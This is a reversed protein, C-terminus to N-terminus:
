FGCGLTVGVPMVVWGECWGLVGADWRTLGFRTVWVWDSIHPRGGRFLCAVVRVGGFM